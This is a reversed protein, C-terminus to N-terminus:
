HTLNFLNKEPFAILLFHTMKLMKLRAIKWPTDIFISKLIRVATKIFGKVNADDTAKQIMVYTLEPVCFPSVEKGTM